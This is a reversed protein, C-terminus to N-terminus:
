EHRSEQRQAEIWRGMRQLARRIAVSVTNEAMARQAAIANVRWGLVYRLVVLERQAAPLQQLAELVLQSEEQALWADDVPLDASPLQEDLDIERPHAAASRASDIVLNRAITIIWGLAADDDGSFRQRSRWARLFAEAALDDAEAARGGVLAMVYRYVQRHSREYFQSFAEADALPRAHGRFGALSRIM